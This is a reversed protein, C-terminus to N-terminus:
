DTDSQDYRLWTMYSSLRAAGVLSVFIGICQVITNVVVNGFLDDALRILCLAALIFIVQACVQIKLQYKEREDFRFFDRIESLM